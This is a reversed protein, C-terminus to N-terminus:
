PPPALTGVAPPTFKKDGGLRKWQLFLAILAVFTATTCLGCFLFVYRYDRLQGLLFGCIPPGIILSVYGFAQNASFYQGYRDRPLLRPTLAAGAGLFIALAGQNITWCVLLSNADHIFWYCSFYSASILFLGVLGVRIPHFRDSLPGAAFFVPIQVLYTWGKVRGFEALSLGLTPAYGPRGADTAFFVVFSLPVLSGWFFFSLSYFTLYFPHTYCEKLYRQVKAWLRQGPPKPPPPPYEGEKVRWVIMFFALAYLLGIDVYIQFTHVQAHGLVWRNFAINGLAGAIRYLGIFRGMVEQPIVDVFLFVYVQTIYANFVTFTLSCAAIWAITCGALTVGSSFGLGHLLQYIFAGTPKAAGLLMLSLVAPPTCWLLFPRRRGLRGRHLDSQMGIVPYLCFALLATPTALLGILTDSAGQWRLQLPVIHPLSELLQFFFDGWLMWFVVQVLAAKTYTLTGVRYVKPSPPPTPPSEVPCAATSLLTLFLTSPRVAIKAM